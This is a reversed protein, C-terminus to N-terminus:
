IRLVQLSAGRPPSGRQEVPAPPLLAHSFGVAVVGVALLPTPGRQKIKPQPKGEWQKTVRASGLCCERMDAQVISQIPTAKADDNKPMACEDMCLIALPHSLVGAVLLTFAIPRLMVKKKLL